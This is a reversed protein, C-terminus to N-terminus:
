AAVARFNHTDDVAACQENSLSVPAVDAARGRELDAIEVMLEGIRRGWTLAQSKCRVGYATYASRPQERTQEAALAYAETANSLYLTHAQRARALEEKLQALRDERETPHM